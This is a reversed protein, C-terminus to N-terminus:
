YLGDSVLWSPLASQGTTFTGAQDQFTRTADVMAVLKDEYTAKFDQWRPDNDKRLARYVAYDYTADEWGALADIPDTTASAPTIQQYYYATLNGAQSPVPYLLITLNPPVKWTTYYLPYSAPWQQNIGWIQDMEMYGRYEVTYTNTGGAGPTPRFELRYIRYMDAPGTYQQNGVTVAITTQARKWEVKRAIESCAQNIWNTLESDSWFQAQPEDLLSRVNSLATALTVTM